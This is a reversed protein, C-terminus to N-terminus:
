KGNMIKEYWGNKTNEKWKEKKLPIISIFPYLRHLFIWWGIKIFVNRKLVLINCKLFCLRADYWSKVNMLHEGM